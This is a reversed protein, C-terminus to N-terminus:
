QCVGNYACRWVWSCSVGGEEKAAVEMVEEAAEAKGAEQRREEVKAGRVTKSM